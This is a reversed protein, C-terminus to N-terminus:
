NKSYSYYYIILFYIASNLISVIIFNQILLFSFIPLWLLIQIFTFCFLLNKRKLIIHHIHNRDAEFPHKKKWIRLIALRLLEFGPIMMILFIEDSFFINGSNYTKIFCYGILYSLLLSGSNGLFMKNKYNFWLFFILTVLLNSFLIFNIKKFIFILFIILSAREGQCNIGDLMNFANIFLLFCLITIPISFLNLEIKQNYFSFNLHEIIISNDFLSFLYILFSLIILRKNASINYKDDLFGLFFLCSVSFIFILTENRSSFLFNDYFNVYSLIGVVTLNFYIILGGLLPIANKHQKRINDPNDYLNYIKKIKHYNFFILFNLFLFFLIYNFM